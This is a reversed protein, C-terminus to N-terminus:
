EDIPGGFAQAVLEARRMAREATSGKGGLMGGNIAEGLVWFRWESDGEHRNVKLDYTVGNITVTQDSSYVTTVEQKVAIEIKM